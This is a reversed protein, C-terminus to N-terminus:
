KGIRRRVAKKTIGCTGKKPKEDFQGEGISAPSEISSTVELPSTDETPLIDETPPTVEIGGSVMELDDMSLETGAKVVMSGTEERDATKETNNNMTGTTKM